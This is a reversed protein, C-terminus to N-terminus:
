PRKCIVNSNFFDVRRKFRDPPVQPWLTRDSIIKQFEVPDNNAVSAQLFKRSKPTYDGRYTLDVIVEKIGSDLLEWSCAGYTNVTNPSMCIRKTEAETEQYSINFLQVQQEQSIEFNKLTKKSDPEKGVTPMPLAIFKKAIEGYKGSATSLLTAVAKSVGIRSLDHFIKAATKEKMDYGRGITLGSRASPVTLVRSHFPGQESGETEFTLKGIRPQLAIM